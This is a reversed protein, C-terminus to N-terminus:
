ALKKNKVTADGNISQELKHGERSVNGTEWARQQAEEDWYVSRKQEMYVYQKTERGGEKLRGHKEKENWWWVCVHVCVRMCVHMYVPVYTCAHVCERVCMHMCMHMCVHVCACTHVCIHVCMCMSTCTCVRMCACMCMLGCTCVSVPTFAHVRMCVCMLKFRHELNQM